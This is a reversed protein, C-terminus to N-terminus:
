ILASTIEASGMPAVVASAATRLSTVVVALAAAAVELVVKLNTAVMVAPTIDVVARRGMAAVVALVLLDTDEEVMEAMRSVAAVRNIGVVGLAPRIIDVVVMEVLVM